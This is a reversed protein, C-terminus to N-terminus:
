GPDIDALSRGSMEDPKPLDMLALLTPSIDLM